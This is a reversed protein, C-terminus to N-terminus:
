PSPFINAKEFHGRLATDLREGPLIRDPGTWNFLDFEAYRGGVYTDLFKAAFNGSSNRYSALINISMPHEIVDESRWAACRSIAVDWDLVALFVYAFALAALRHFLGHLVAAGPKSRGMLTAGERGAYSFLVLPFCAKEHM